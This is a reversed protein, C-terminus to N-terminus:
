GGIPSIGLEAFPVNITVWQQVEAWGPSTLIMILCGYGIRFYGLGDGDVAELVGSLQNIEVLSNVKHTKRRNDIPAYRAIPGEIDFEVSFSGRVDPRIGGRGFGADLVKRADSSSWSKTRGM